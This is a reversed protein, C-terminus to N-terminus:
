IIASDSTVFNTNALPFLPCVLNTYLFLSSINVSTKLLNHFLSNYVSPNTSLGLTSSNLSLSRNLYEGKLCSDNLCFSITSSISFFMVFFYKISAGAPEPLDTRNVFKAKEKASTYGSKLIPKIVVPFKVLCNLKINLDIPRFM